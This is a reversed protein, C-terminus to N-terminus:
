IIAVCAAIPTLDLKPLPPTYIGKYVKPVGRSINEFGSSKKTDPERDGNGNGRFARFRRDGSLMVSISACRVTVNQKCTLLDINEESNLFKLYSSESCRRTIAARHL